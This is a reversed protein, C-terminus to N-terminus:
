HYEGGFVHSRRGDDVHVAFLVCDLNDGRLHDSSGKVLAREASSSRFGAIVFIPRIDKVEVGNVTVNRDAGDVEMGVCGIAV